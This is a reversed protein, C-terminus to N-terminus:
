KAEPAATAAGPGGRLTAIADFLSVFCKASTNETKADPTAKKLAEFERLFGGVGTWVTQVVGAFREKMVPTARERFRLMDQVQLVASKSNKWPCTAVRLGKMAFYVPTQDARDYHWDCIVVDKPILDIAKHTGNMAAEWEGLGTAQADLLRDGWMWLTRGKANLHDRIAKLEGAFLEAKDKGSCRPCKDEGIYFVEDMGAHFADTEFAACLEDMLAFVVEHVKPHLPCYSKCYLKDPNPWAYKEPMKVWPTEDFDPYHRLLSGLSGAWSQHGLLNIQPIIKIRNAKCANVMKKVDEKSLGNSEKLEPYSEYQFNYDVRLILTNVQRPGLEANIFGIFADLERPAPAAIAFGRIPLMSDLNTQAQAGPNLALLGGVVLLAIRAWELIRGALPGPRCGIPSGGPGQLGPAGERREPQTKRCGGLVLRKM